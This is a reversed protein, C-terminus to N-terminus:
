LAGIQGRRHGPLKGVKKVEPKSAVVWGSCRCVNSKEGLGTFHVDAM